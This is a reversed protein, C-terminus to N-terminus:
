PCSSGYAALLEALDQLDVDGDKDLDGDFYTASSTSGYSALLQALDSLGIACDGDLDAFLGSGCFAATQNALVSVIDADIAAVVLDSDLDGDVDAAAVGAPGAGVAYHVPAHFSGDGRNLFVSASNVGTDATTAILEPDGDCDLDRASLAVAARGDPFPLAETNEFGGAGDNWLLTIDGTDHNATAVDAHGDGDLDGAMLSRPDMGTGFHIAPGFTADGNNILVSIDNSDRNATV